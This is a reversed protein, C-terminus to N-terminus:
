FVGYIITANPYHGSVPYTWTLTTGTISIEVDWGDTSFVGAATDYFPTHGALGFNADYVTGQQTSGTYSSGVNIKGLFKVVQTTVDFVQQGSANWCQIGQAM